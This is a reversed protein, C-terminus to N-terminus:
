SCRMALAQSVGAQQLLGSELLHIVELAAIYAESQSNSHVVRSGVQAKKGQLQRIAVSPGKKYWMIRFSGTKWVMGAPASAPLGWGGIRQALARAKAKPQAKGKAKAKAMGKAKAKAVGKAKAKAKGKAKAKPQVRAAVPQASADDIDGAVEQMRADSIDAQAIESRADMIM